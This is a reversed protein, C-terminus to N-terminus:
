GERRWASQSLRYLCHAQLPHGAPVKPHMFNQPERQMGLRQMVAQSPHNSLATFAVIETLELHNFGFALAAKAAETAYGNGWHAFALRWGIEVCPSFPLDANPRNLGTFGIFEQTEKLALAWFGWGNELIQAMIKQEMAASAQADIPGLLMNMVKPDASMQAFPEADSIQWQRLILRETSLTLPSSM